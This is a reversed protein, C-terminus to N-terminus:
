SRSKKGGIGPAEASHHDGAQARGERPRDDQVGGGLSSRPDGIGGGQHQGGGQGLNGLQGGQHGLQTELGPLEQQHLYPNGGNVQVWDRMNVDNCAQRLHWQAGSPDASPPGVRQFPQSGYAGLEQGPLRRMTLAERLDRLEQELRQVREAEPDPVQQIGGRRSNWFGHVEGDGQQVGVRVAQPGLWKNM